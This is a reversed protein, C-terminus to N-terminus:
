SFLLMISIHLRWNQQHSLFKTEYVHGIIKSGPVIQPEETLVNKDKVVGM